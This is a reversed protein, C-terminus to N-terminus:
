RMLPEWTLLNYLNTFRHEPENTAKIALRKQMEFTKMRCLETPMDM